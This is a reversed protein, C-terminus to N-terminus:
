PKRVLTDVFGLQGKLHKGFEQFLRDRAQEYQRQTCLGKHILMPATAEFNLLILRLTQQGLKSDGDGVLVLPIAEVLEAGLEKLWEAQSTAVDLGQNLVALYDMGLRLFSELAPHPAVWGLGGQTTVVDRLYLVGGRNLREYLQALYAKAQPLYGSVHIAFIFDFEVPGEAQLGLCKELPKAFDYTYFSLYPRPPKSLKCFEEATTVAASDIDLGSLQAGGLLDREELLAALEQLYQGEGCALNLIRSKTRNVKALQLKAALGYEDLVKQLIQSFSSKYCQYRVALRERNDVEKFLYDKWWGENANTILNMKNTVEKKFM